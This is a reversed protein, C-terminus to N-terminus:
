EEEEEYPPVDQILQGLKRRIHLPLPHDRLSRAAAIVPTVAPDHESGPEPQGSCDSM